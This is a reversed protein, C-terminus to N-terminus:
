TEKLEQKSPAPHACHTEPVAAQELTSDTHPVKPESKSCPLTQHTLHQLDHDPHISDGCSSIWM